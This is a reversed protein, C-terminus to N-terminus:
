SVGNVQSVSQHCTACYPCTYPSTGTEERGVNVNITNGQICSQDGTTQIIIITQGELQKQVITPAVTDPVEETDNEWLYKVGEIALACVVAAVIALAVEFWGFGGEIQGMDADTLPTWPLEASTALVPAKAAAQAIGTGTLAMTVILVMSIASISDRCFM